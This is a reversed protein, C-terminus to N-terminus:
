SKEPKKEDSSAAPAPKSSDTSPPTAVASTAAEAASAAGTKKSETAEVKPAAAEAATKASAPETKEVPETKTTAADAAAAASKNFPKAAAQKRIEHINNITEILLDINIPKHIVYDAEAERRREELDLAPYATVFIVPMDQTKPNRRIMKCLMFGDLNPMMIDLLAVEPKEIVALTMAELSNLTTVPEFGSIELIMKLLNLTDQEDDVVLVRTGM